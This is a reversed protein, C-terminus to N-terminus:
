VNKIYIISEIFVIFLLVNPINTINHLLIRRNINKDEEFYKAYLGCKSEDMRCSRVYDYNIRGNVIDKNGFKKCKNLKSTFERNFINPENYICNKCNKYHQTYPIDINKINHRSSGLLFVNKYRM